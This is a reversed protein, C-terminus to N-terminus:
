TVLSIKHISELDRSVNNVAEKFYETNEDHLWSDGPTCPLGREVLRWARPWAPTQLSEIFTLGFASLYNLESKEKQLCCSLVSPALLKWADKSPNWKIESIWCSANTHKHKELRFDWKTKERNWSRQWWTHGPAPRGGAAWLCGGARPWRGRCGRRSEAGRCGWTWAARWQRGRSPSAGPLCTGALRGGSCGLGTWCWSWRPSASSPAPPRSWSSSSAASRATRPNNTDWHKCVPRLHSDLRLSVLCRYCFIIWSSWVSM